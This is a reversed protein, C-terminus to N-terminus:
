NESMLTEFRRLKGWMEDSIGVYYEDSTRWSAHGLWKQVWVGPIGAEVCYSAFARRLDHLQAKVGAAAALQIFKDSVSREPFKFPRTEKRRRELIGRVPGLMPVTRYKRGKTYRARVIGSEFDVDEWQLQLAESRRFGTFLYFNWLDELQPADTRTVRLIAKIERSSLVRPPALEVRMARALKFPNEVLYGWRVATSFVSRLTRLYFNVRAPSATSAVAAMLEDAMRATVRDIHRALPFQKQLRDLAIKEGEVTAAAKMSASWALYQEAFDVISIREGPSIGILDREKSRAAIRAVHRDRTELSIRKRKGDLRIDLYYIGTRPDRYISSM